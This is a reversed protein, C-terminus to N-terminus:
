NWRKKDILRIYGKREVQVRVHVIGFSVSILLFQSHLIYENNQLILPIMAKSKGKDNYIPKRVRLEIMKKVLEIIEPVFTIM